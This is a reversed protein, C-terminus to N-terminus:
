EYAAAWGGIFENLLTGEIKQEIFRVLRGMTGNSWDEDLPKIQIQHIEELKKVYNKLAQKAAMSTKEAAQATDPVDEKLYNQAKEQLSAVTYKEFVNNTELFNNTGYIHKSLYLVIGPFNGFPSISGVRM